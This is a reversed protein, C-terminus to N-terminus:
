RKIFIYHDHIPGYPIHTFIASQMIAIGTELDTIIQKKNIEWEKKSKIILADPFASILTENNENKGFKELFLKIEETESIKFLDKFSVREFVELKGGIGANYIKVRKQEAFFKAKKYGPHVLDDIRPRHYKKGEGFYRPDFHNPDDDSTSTWNRNDNKIISDPTKYNMDVGILYIENFGLYILIQLGVNAVTGNMGAKPLEEYFGNRYLDLWYINDDNKIFNRFDSNQPHIDPFFCYKIKQTIKNIENANDKAVREDVTSYFTPIWNLREFMINFRNFCMTYENKLLHLPTKNLSPGNGILFVRQGEFKNKILKWNRFQNTNRATLKNYEVKLLSSIEDLLSSIGQKKILNLSKKIIMM